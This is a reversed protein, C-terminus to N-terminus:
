RLPWSSQQNLTKRIVGAYGSVFQNSCVRSRSPGAATDGILPLPLPLRASLAGDINESIPSRDHEAM